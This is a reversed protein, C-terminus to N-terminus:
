DEYDDEGFVDIEEGDAPSQNCGYATIRGNLSAELGVIMDSLAAIEKEEIEKDQQMNELDSMLGLISIGLLQLEDCDDTEQIKQSLEGVKKEM